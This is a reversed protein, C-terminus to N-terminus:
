TFAADVQATTTITPPNAAVQADVTQETAFCSAVHAAVASAMASIETAGITAFTGDAFKWNTTYSTNQAASTAAGVIMLKSRDDTMVPKNGISGGFDVSVGGVEKQWRRSAAYSALQAPTPAPGPPANAVIASVLADVQSQVASLACSTFPYVVEPPGAVVGDERTVNALVLDVQGTLLDVQVRFSEQARTVTM